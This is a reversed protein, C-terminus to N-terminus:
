PPILGRSLSRGIPSRLLWDGGAGFHTPGIDRVLHARLEASVEEARPFSGIAALKAFHEDDAEADGSLDGIREFVVATATPTRGVDLACSLILGDMMGATITNVGNLIAFVLAGSTLEAGICFLQGQLTLAWGDVLVGGSGMDFHLLGNEARRVMVHDRVFRGPQQAFPRTSRFFGEYAGGRLRSGSLAEQLLALPLGDGFQVEPAGTVAADLGLVGALSELNRDWDLESFGDVRDAVMGTLKALNHGSPRVAGTVWRGVISKDVELEAAVHGRTLNLAKLVFALNAPFGQPMSAGFGRSVVNL